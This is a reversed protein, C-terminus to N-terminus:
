SLIVKIGNFLFMECYLRLRSSVNMSAQLPFNCDEGLYLCLCVSRYKMRQM